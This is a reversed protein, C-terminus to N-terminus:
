GGLADRTAHEARLLSPLEAAAVPRSLYFGQALDCGLASLRAWTAHDEVGEAVVRLGLSRALEITSRVIVADNDDVMMGAVFSRDIKIEDVPLRKLYSLSSYGTGFDDIAISVGLASLRGLVGITRSPDAMVSSETIEVTLAKPPLDFEGMVASVEDPLNVDLVARVSLNIAVGFDNTLQSLRRCQTAADRLVLLTLPRILGSHEALPVFDDPPLLGEVPHRWRLLAEVGSIRGSDLQAKPQYHVEMQGDDIAQRLEGALSLRRPSYHDRDAAYVEWGSHAEKAAYMAVDARQLLKVPDDGHQPLLAVGISATVELNLEGVTFPRELASLLTVAVQAADGSGSGPLLVGFEDGGFRAVMGREAIQQCLRNAVERLLLDGHHHGLTDNVEKFRDLDILMIASPRPLELAAAEILENFRTRNALGTLVDHRSDRRLRDLLRNNQISVAAHNALTELLRLDEVTFPARDPGQKAVLLTGRTEGDIRLPAVLADHLQRDLMLRRLAGDAPQDALLVPGGTAAAVEVSEGPVVTTVPVGEGRALTTRQTWGPESVDAVFTLEALDAKLLQRAQKLLSGVTTAEDKSGELESTFGYLTELRGFAQRFRVAATFASRAIVAPTLIALVAVPSVEIYLRGLLVGLLGFALYNPLTPRLDAWVRQCSDGSELAVAPIVLGTNVAAFVASAATAALVTGAGVALLSQYCAAAGAACLAYQSCNFTVVSWRHRRLHRGILGGMAGVVIAGLVTGRGDFAAIAALAFMSAPSIRVSSPMVVAANEAVISFGGFLLIVALEPRQGATFAALLFVVVAMGGVIATLQRFAGKTDLGRKV